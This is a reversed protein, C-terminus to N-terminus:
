GCGPGPSPRDPVTPDVAEIHVHPWAPDATRIEDVQSEFPLQHAHLAIVTEGAVVRQGASVQLGVVHLVKVEWHAADVGDPAIVLYEDTFRCYLTYAGGRVVTGTVPARIEVTPDVVVDAASQRDTGRDRSDLVTPAVASAAAELHRAGDHNSEHFGVREVIRAPHLLTIGDTVVMPTYAQETAARRPPPVVVVPPRPAATTPPPPPLTTSTTTTTSSTTSTSTSTTTTARVTATTGAVTTGSGADVAPAEDGCGAAVLAVAVLLPALGARRARRVAGM